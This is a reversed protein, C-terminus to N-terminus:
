DEDSNGFDYRMCAWDISNVRLDKNFDGSRGVKDQSLVWQSNLEKKDFSNIAGDRVPPFIDGVPLIFGPLNITGGRALFEAVRRLGDPHKIGVKYAKGEVLKTKLGVVVGDKDIKVKERVLEGPPSSENVTIDVNEIDFKGPARCFAKAGLALQSVGSCVGEGTQGDSNTITIPFTQGVPPNTLSARIQDAKWEVVQLTTTGSAIKGTGRTTGFNFGRVDFEVKGDGITPKCSLVQPEPGLLRVEASRRLPTGSVPIFEVWVFKQGPNTDKFTLSEILPERYTRQPASALDAPNEAIKYFATGSGAGPATSPPVSPPRSGSPPISRTGPQTGGGPAGPGAAQTTSGVWFEKQALTADCSDTPQTGSTFPDPYLNGDWACIRTGNSANAVMYYKGPNQPTIWDLRTQGSSLTGIQQRPLSASAPLVGDTSVGRIDKYIDYRRDQTIDFHIAPNFNTCKVPRCEDWRSWLNEPGERFAGESVYERWCNDDLILKGGEYASTGGVGAKLENCVGECPLEGSSGCHPGRSRIDTGRATRSGSSGVRGETGPEPGMWYVDVRTANQSSINATQSPRTQGARGAPFPATQTGGSFNIATVKPVSGAAPPPVPATSPPAPLTCGDDYTNYTNSSGETITCESQPSNPHTLRCIRDAETQDSCQPAEPDGIWCATANGPCQGAPKTPEPIPVCGAVWDKGTPSIYCGIQSPDTCDDETCWYAGGGGEPTQCLQLTRQCATPPPPPPGGDCQGPYAPFEQVDNQDYLCAFNAFGPSTCGRFIDYEADGDGDFPNCQNPEPCQGPYAPFEDYDSTNYKCGFNAFGPRTCGMFIDYEEDGNADFRNCQNLDPCQGPYAEFERFDNQNYVCAFNAYGPRTCERFISFEADGDADFPNCQSQPPPQSVVFCGGPDWPPGGRCQENPACISELSHSGGPEDRYRLNGVCSFSCSVGPQCTGHGAYVDKVLDINPLLSMIQESTDTTRTTAAASPPPGLPSVLNFFVTPSTTVWRNGEKNLTDSDIFVIPDVAARSSFIRQQSVLNVTVPIGLILIGLILLNITNKKDKLFARFVEM